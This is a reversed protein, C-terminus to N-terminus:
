LAQLLGQSCGEELLDHVTNLVDMPLSTCVSVQLWLVNQQCPQAGLDAVEAPAGILEQLRLRPPPAGGAAAMLVHRRLDQEAFAVALLHVEPTEPHKKVFEQTTDCGEQSSAIAFRKLLLNMHNLVRAGWPKGVFGTMQHAAQQLAQWLM